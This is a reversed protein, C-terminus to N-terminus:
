RFPRRRANWWAGRSARRALRLSCEFHSPSQLLAGNFWARCTAFHSPLFVTLKELRNLSFEASRAAAVYGGMLPALEGLVFVQPVGLPLHSAPTANMYADPRQNPTGGMFPVIVPRGCVKADIGIFPALDGPEDIAVVGAVRLM